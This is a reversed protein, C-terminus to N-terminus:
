CNKKTKKHKCIVHKKYCKKCKAHTKYFESINLTLNCTNCTKTPM